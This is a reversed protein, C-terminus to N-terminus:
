RTGAEGSFRDLMEWPCRARLFDRGTATIRYGKEPLDGLGEEDSVTVLGREVLDTMASRIEDEAYPVIAQAFGQIIHRWFLAEGPTGEFRIALDRLIAEQIYRLRRTEVNM